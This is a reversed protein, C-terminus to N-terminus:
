PQTRGEKGRPRRLFPLRSLGPGLCLSCAKSIWGDSTIV